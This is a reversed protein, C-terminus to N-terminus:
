VELIAKIVDFAFTRYNGSEEKTRVITGNGHGRLKIVECVKGVFDPVCSEMELLKEEPALALYVILSAGLTHKGGGELADQVFTNKAELLGGPLEGLGLRGSKEIAILKADFNRCDPRHVHDSTIEADLAAQLAAYYDNLFPQINEEGEFTIWTREACLLAERMGKKMKLYPVAPGFEGMLSNEANFNVNKFLTEDEQGCQWREDDDFKVQPLLASVLEKMFIDDPAGLEVFRNNDGGHLPADRRGKMRDIRSVFDPHCECFSRLPHTGDEAAQLVSMPLATRMEASGSLYKNLDQRTVPALHGSDDCGIEGMANRFLAVQDRSSSFKLEPVMSDLGNLRCSYYLAWEMAAYIDGIARTGDQRLRLKPWLEPYLKRVANGSEQGNSNTESNGLSVTLDNSWKMIWDQLNEDSGMEQLFVAELERSYGYGFPDAIRWRGDADRLVIPCDLVFREPNPAVDIQGVRPLHIVDGYAEVRRKTERISALVEETTPVFKFRSATMSWSHEPEAKWRPPNDHKPLYIFPLLKGAVLERFVWATRLELGEAEGQMQRFGLDTIRNQEDILKNDRLRLLVGEVFDEELCTEKAIRAADHARTVKIIGLVVKEFANLTENETITRPLSVRYGDVPWSLHRVAGIIGSKPTVNGFDLCRVQM